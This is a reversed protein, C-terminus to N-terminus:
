DVLPTPLKYILFHKNKNNNNWAKCIADKIKANFFIADLVYFLIPACRRKLLELAVIDKNVGCNSIISYIAAFFKCIQENLHFLNKSNNTIFFWPLTFKNSWNLSNGSLQSSSSPFHIKSPYINCSM